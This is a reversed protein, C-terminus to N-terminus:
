TTKDFLNYFLTRQVNNITVSSLFSKLVHITTSKRFASCVPCHNTIKVTLICGSVLGEIVIEVLLSKNCSDIYGWVDENSSKNLLEM